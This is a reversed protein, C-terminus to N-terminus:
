MEIFFDIKITTPCIEDFHLFPLVYVNIKKNSFM